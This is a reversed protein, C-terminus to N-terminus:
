LALRLGIYDPWEHRRVVRCEYDGWNACGGRFVRSSWGEVYPRGTPNVVDEEPYIGYWDSCKEFANGSMDYIGLENPKKSRVPHTQAEPFGTSEHFYGERSNDYWWAVENVDDSGSYRYGKSKNGGRAAFEWEAETPLRFTQGTLKNLRGIFIEQWYDDSIYDIVPRNPDDRFRLNRQIWEWEDYEHWDKMDKMVAEFLEHTVETEAIYYDNTLTVKHVPRENEQEYEEGMMFSGAEVKVMRFKVGNAEFDIYENVVSTKVVEVDCAASLQGSEATIQVKGPKHASVTGSQNVSAIEPNSSRWEVEKTTANTPLIEAWLHWNTREEMTLSRSSISVDTVQHVPQIVNVRCQATKEGSQATIVASGVTKATVRGDQSVEAIEEDSSSWQIEKHTAEEPYVTAILTRSYKNYISIESENLSISDVPVIDEIFSLPSMIIQGDCNVFLTVENQTYPKPATVTVSGSRGDTMDVSAQWGNTAMTSVIAEGWGGEISFDINVSGGARILIDESQSYSMKIEQYKNIEVANGDNLIISYILTSGTNDISTVMQDMDHESIPGLETWNQRGDTSLYWKKDQIMLKPIESCQLFEGNLTWKYEKDVKKLGVIPALSEGEPKAEPIDQYLVARIGDVYTLEFVNKGSGDYSTTFYRVPEGTAMKKVILDLSAINNNLQSCLDEASLFVSWTHLKFQEGNLLTFIVYDPSSTYDIEKFIDAGDKGDKGKDGTAQVGTEKWTQGNDTSIYWFGGEVKLQPSIADKGNEAAAQIKKGNEDLMWEGDLTWYWIGDSDAKVSVVPSHGDQGNKGHYVTIDTGNSFEIVYGIEVGNEKVPTVKEILANETIAQMIAQLSNLQSNMKEVQEQLEKINDHLEEIETEFISCGNLSLAACITMIPIFKKMNMM